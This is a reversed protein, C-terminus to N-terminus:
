ETDATKTLRSPTVYDSLFALFVILCVVGHFWLSWSLMGERLMAETTVLVGVTFISFLPFGEGKPVVKRLVESMGIIIAVAVLWAGVQVGQGLMLGGTALLAVAGLWVGSSKSPTYM